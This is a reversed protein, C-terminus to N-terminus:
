SSYLPVQIDKLGVLRIQTALENNTVVPDGVDGHGNIYKTASHVVM